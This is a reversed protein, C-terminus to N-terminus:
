KPLLLTESALLEPFDDIASLNSSLLAYRHLYIRSRM